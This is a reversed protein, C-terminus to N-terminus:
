GGAEENGTESKKIIAARRVVPRAAKKPEEPKVEEPVLHVVKLPYLRRLDNVLFKKQVTFSAPHMQNFLEQFSQWKEPEGNRFEQSDIKKETLYLEFDPEM